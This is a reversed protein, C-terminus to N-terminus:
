DSRSQITQVFHESIAEWSYHEEYMARAAGGYRLRAASDGALARSLAAFAASDSVPVVALAPASLTQHACEGQTTVVCLGHQAAAMLTTRRTTVGDCYPALFLDTAALLRALKVGDQPGPRVIRLRPHRVPLEDPARGLNVFIIEHGAELSVEVAAAVHGVLQHPHTMGFTSIVLMNKSAALSARAAARDARQDPMNSGVPMVDVRMNRNVGRLVALWPEATVLVADALHVLAVLQQRQIAGMLTYRLGPTVVFPEHVVLVLRRLAGRRRAAVLEALLGPAVGWHGYSFPNYQLALVDASTRRLAEHLPAEDRHGAETWAGRRRRLLLNGAVEPRSALATALHETFALIADYQDPRPSYALAVRIAEDTPM